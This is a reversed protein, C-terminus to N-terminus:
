PIFEKNKAIALCHTTKKGYSLQATYPHIEQINVVVLSKIKPEDLLNPV